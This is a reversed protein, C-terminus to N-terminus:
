TASFPWNHTRAFEIARLMGDFSRYPGGPAAILGHFRELMTESGPQALAETPVWEVDVPLGLKAASHGIAKAIAPHTRYEPNFDGVVGMRLPENM